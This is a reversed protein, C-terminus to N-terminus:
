DNEFYRCCPAYFSLVLPFFLVLGGFGAVAEPLGQLIVVSNMGTLLNSVLLCIVLIHKSWRWFGLFTVAGIFFAGSIMLYFTQYSSLSVMMDMGNVKMLERVENSPTPIGLMSFATGLIILAFAGASIARFQNKSPYNM